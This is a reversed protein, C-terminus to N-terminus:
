ILLSGSINSQIIKGIVEENTKTDRQLKEPLTLAINKVQQHERRTRVAYLVFRVGVLVANFILSLVTVVSANQLIWIYLFLLVISPLDKVFLRFNAARNAEREVGYVDVSRCVTLLSIFPYHVNYRRSRLPCLIYVVGVASLIALIILVVTVGAADRSGDRRENINSFELILFVFEAIMDLDRAIMLVLTKTQTFAASKHSAVRVEKTIDGHSQKPKALSFLVLIGWIFIFLNVFRFVDVKGDKRLDEAYQTLTLDAPVILIDQVVANVILLVLLLIVLTLARKFRKRIAILENRQKTAKPVVAIPAIATPSTVVVSLQPPTTNRLRDILSTIHKLFPIGFLVQVILLVLIFVAVIFGEMHITITNNIFYYVPLEVFLKLALFVFCLRNIRASYLRFERLTHPSHTFRALFLSFLLLFWCLLVAAGHTGFRRVLYVFIDQFDVDVGELVYLLPFIMGFRYCTRQLLGRTSKSPVLRRYKIYFVCFTVTNVLFFTVYYSLSLIM